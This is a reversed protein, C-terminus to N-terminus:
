SVALGIKLRTASEVDFTVDLSLIGRMAAMGRWEPHTTVLALGPL